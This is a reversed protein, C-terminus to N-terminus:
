CTCYSVMRKPIPSDVEPESYLETMSADLAKLAGVVANPDATPLHKDADGITGDFLYDFKTTKVIGAVDRGGDTAGVLTRWGHTTQRLVRQFAM